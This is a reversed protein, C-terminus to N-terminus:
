RVKITTVVNPKRHMVQLEDNNRIVLDVSVASNSGQRSGAAQKKPSM